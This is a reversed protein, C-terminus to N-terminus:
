FNYEPAKTHFLILHGTIVKNPWLETVEYYNTFMCSNVTLHKCLTCSLRDETTLADQFM